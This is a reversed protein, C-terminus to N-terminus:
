LFLANLLARSSRIHQYMAERARLPDRQELAELLPRHTVMAEGLPPYTSFYYRWLRLNHLLLRDASLYLFPNPVIDMLFRHIQQDDELFQGPRRADRAREAQDVLDRFRDIDEETAYLAALQAIGCEIVERADFITRVTDVGIGSVMVGRRPLIVVLRDGALRAIAERVPMRGLGVRAALSQEDVMAGPELHLSVILERLQRYALESARPVSVQQQSASTL